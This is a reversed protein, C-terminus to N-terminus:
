IAFLIKKCVTYSGKFFEVFKMCKNKRSWEYFNLMPGDFIFLHSVIKSKESTSYTTVKLEDGFALSIYIWNM